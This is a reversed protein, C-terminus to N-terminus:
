LARLDMPATPAFAQQHAAYSQDAQELLEMPITQEFYREDPLWQIAQNASQKRATLEAIRRRLQLHLLCLEADRDVNTLRELQSVARTLTELTVYALPNQGALRLSTEVVKLDSLTPLQGGHRDLLSKLAGHPAPVTRSQALARSEEFIVASEEQFCSALCTSPPADAQLKALTRRM